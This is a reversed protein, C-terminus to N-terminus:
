PLGKGSVVAPIELIRDRSYDVLKGFMWPLLILLALGVLLLRPVIAVTSDQIQMATQLIGLLLGVVLAIVLLPGAIMLTQILAGRVLDVADQAIM